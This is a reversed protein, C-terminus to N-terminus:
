ASITRASATIRATKNAFEISVRGGVAKVTLEETGVKVVSDELLTFEGVPTFKFSTRDGISLKIRVNQGFGEASQAFTANPLMLALILACAILRYGRKM